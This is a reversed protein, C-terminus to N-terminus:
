KNVVTKLEDITDVSTVYQEELTGVSLLGVSKFGTLSTAM